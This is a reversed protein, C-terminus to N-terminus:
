MIKILLDMSETKKLKFNYYKYENNVRVKLYGKETNVESVIGTVKIQM